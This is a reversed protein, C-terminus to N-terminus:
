HKLHMAAEGTDQFAPPALALGHSKALRVTLQLRWNAGLREPASSAIITDESATAEALGMIIQDTGDM